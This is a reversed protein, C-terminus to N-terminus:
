RPRPRRSSARSPGGNSRIAKSIRRPDMPVNGRPPRGRTHPEADVAARVRERRQVLRDCRRSASTANRRSDRANEGCRVRARNLRRRSGRRHRACRGAAERARRRIYWRGRSATDSGATAAHDSRCAAADDRRQRRLAGRVHTRGSGIAIPYRSPEIGNANSNDRRRSPMSMRRAPLPLTPAAFTRRVLPTPAAIRTISSSM